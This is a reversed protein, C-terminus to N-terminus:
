IKDVIAAIRQAINDLKEALKQTACVNLTYIYSKDMSHFDNIETGYVFVTDGPINRDITLSHSDANVYTVTYVDQNGSMDIISLKTGVIMLHNNFDANDFTILNLFCSATCFINPVVAKQVYIAEPIVEKVQQAIFGYVKETSRTPDIYNYTKPEIAMIKQLASDDDIDSVNKKIRQDSSAAVTDKVLISSDFIACTDSIAYAESTMQANCSFYRLVQSSLSVSGAVHVNAVPNNTGIGVNGEGYYIYQKGNQAYYTDSDKWRELQYNESVSLNTSYASWRIMVIGSGGAGGSRDTGDSNGGGGGGGTNAVGSIGVFQTSGNNYGGAGGGGKGGTAAITSTGYTTTPTRYWYGSGGGGGFYRNNNGDSNTGYATGFIDSFPYTSSNITASYVGNGGNAPSYPNAATSGSQGAGGGGGGAGANVGTDINRNGGTNGYKVAITSNYISSTGIAGGGANNTISANIYGDAGGGSGGTGGDATLAGGGGGGEAVLIDINNSTIITNGGKNGIGNSIAMNGAIGGAGVTINYIGPLLTISKVFIVAGAGGGGGHNASGSGGGGVLLIDCVTNQYFTITGTNGSSNSTFAYYYNNDNILISNQNVGGVNISPQTYSASGIITKKVNGNSIEIDGGYIELKNGYTITSTGIGVSGTTIYNSTTATIWKSINLNDIRKNM